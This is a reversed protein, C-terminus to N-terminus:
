SSAVVTVSWVGGTLGVPTVWQLTGGSTTVLTRFNWTQSAVALGNSTFQVSSSMANNNLGTIPFNPYYNPSSTVFTYTISVMATTNFSSYISASNNFMGNVVNTAFLGVPQIAAIQTILSTVSTQLADVTIQLASVATNIATLDAPKMAGVQAKLDALSTTLTAVSARNDDIAKQLITADFPKIGNVQAQLATLTTTNQAVTNKLDADAKALDTKATNLSAEATAIRTNIATLDVPVPIATKLAYSSRIGVLDNELRTIDAKYQSLKPAFFSVVGFAIAGAVVAVMLLNSFDFNGGKKKPADGYDNPMMPYNQPPYQPPLPYGQPPQNPPQNQPPQNQIVM